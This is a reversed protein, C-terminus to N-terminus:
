NIIKRQLIFNQFYQPIIIVSIQLTIPISILIFCPAVVLLESCRIKISDIFGDIEPRKRRFICGGFLGFNELLQFSILDSQENEKYCFKTTCVVPCAKLAVVLQRSPLGNNGSLVSGNQWNSKVMKMKTAKQLRRSYVVVM